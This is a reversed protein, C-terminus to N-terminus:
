FDFLHEIKVNEKKLQNLISSLYQTPAQIAVRKYEMDTVIPMSFLENGNELDYKWDKPAVVTLLIEDNGSIDMFRLGEEALQPVSDTFGQYHPLTVIVSGDKLTKINKINPNKFIESSINEVHAYVVTDAVGYAAHTGLGIIKAYIEKVGYEISLNFKREWKRILHPGFLGTEKWLGVFARGFPFEYWPYNPIFEGYEKAVNAAYVDESTQEGRSTLESLRGITNEYIGKFLYEATFSTGIVVEVVHDKSNFEYNNKTIGYVQCYGYWFQKISSFYPFQSPLNTKLFEAYEQPNFVLYWEPYTLYTTEETRNYNPINSEIIKDAETISKTIPKFNNAESSCKSAFIFGALCVLVILFIFLAVLKKFFKNRIIKKFLEIFKM